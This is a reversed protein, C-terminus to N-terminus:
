CFNIHFLSVVYNPLYVDAETHTHRSGLECQAPEQTLVNGGRAVGRHTWHHEGEM